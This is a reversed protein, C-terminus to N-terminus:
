IKNKKNKKEFCSLMHKAFFSFICQLQVFFQMALKERVQRFNLPPVLLLPVNQM